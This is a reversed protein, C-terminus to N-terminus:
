LLKTSGIAVRVDLPTCAPILLIKKASLSLSPRIFSVSTARTLPV